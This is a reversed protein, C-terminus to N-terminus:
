LISSVSPNPSLSSKPSSSYIHVLAPPNIAAITVIRGRGQFQSPITHLLRSLIDKSLMNRLYVTSCDELKSFISLDFFGLPLKPTLADKGAKIESYFVFALSSAIIDIYKLRRLCSFPRTWPSSRASLYPTQVTGEPREMDVYLILCLRSKRQTPFISLLPGCRRWPESRV